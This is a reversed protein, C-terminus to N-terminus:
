KCRKPSNYRKSMAENMKRGLELADEKTLESDKSFSELIKLQEIKSKIAKRAVESWNMIKFEEMELKLEEPIALTINVM